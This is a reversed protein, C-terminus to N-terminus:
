NCIGSCHSHLGLRPHSSRLASANDSLWRSTDRNSILRSSPDRNGSLGSSSGRHNSYRSLSCDVVSCHPRIRCIHRPWCRGHLGYWGLFRGPLLVGGGATFLYIISLASPHLLPDMPRECATKTQHTGLQEVLVPVEPVHESHTTFSISDHGRGYLRFSFASFRVVPRFGM